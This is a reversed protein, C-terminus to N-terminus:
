LQTVRMQVGLVNILNSGDGSAQLQFSTSGSGLPYFVTTLAGIAGSISGVEFTNLVTAGNALIQLKTSGGTGSFTGWGTTFGDGVFSIIVPRGSTVTISISQNTVTAFSAASRSYTGCSTSQATNAATLNSPAITTSAIQGGIIGASSSIQATTITGSAIQTATITGNALQSGAIGASASIQGGTIGASSSLNSATLGGSVAAYAAINGSSDISVFNTAVPVAPLTLSYSGGSLSSPPVLTLFNSGSVGTQGMLYSGAQISTPTNAAQNVVLVSSSFSATASGSSIGSSTANVAGGATIQISPDAAGDNFYLNGDIGVWLSNITAYSSQENFICAQLGTAPNNQFPLALNINLGNPSIQVGSGSSHNHGDIIGMANFQQNAYDPGPDVGPVPSPLNMNPTIIFNAM